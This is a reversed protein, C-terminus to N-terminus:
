EVFDMDGEIESWFKQMGTYIARLLQKGCDAKVDLSGPASGPPVAMCDACRAIMRQLHQMQDAPIGPFLKGLQSDTIPFDHKCASNIKGQLDKLFIPTFSNANEFGWEVGFEGIPLLCKDRAAEARDAELVGAQSPAAHASAQKKGM